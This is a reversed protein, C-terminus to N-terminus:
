RVIFEHLESSKYEVFDLGFNNYFSVNSWFKDTAYEIGVVRNYPFNVQKDEESM